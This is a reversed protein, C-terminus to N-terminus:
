LGVSNRILGVLAGGIQDKGLIASAGAGLADRGATDLEYTVLGITRANPNIARIRRIVDLGASKPMDLDILTCDPRTEMYLAVGTEASAATGALELDPEARILLAIGELLIPNHDIALVVVQEHHSIGHAM